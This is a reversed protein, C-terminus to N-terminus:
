KKSKAKKVVKLKKTKGEVKSKKAILFKVGKVEFEKCDGLKKIEKDTIEGTETYFQYGSKDLLFTMISAAVEGNFDACFILGEIKRNTEIESKDVAYAVFEVIEEKDQQTIKKDFM